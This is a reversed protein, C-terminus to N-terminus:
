TGGAQERLVCGFSGQLMTKYVEILWVQRDARRPGCEHHEDEKGGMGNM